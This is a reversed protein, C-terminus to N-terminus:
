YMINGWGIRQYMMNGWESLIIHGIKYVDKKSADIEITLYMLDSGDNDMMNGWESLM